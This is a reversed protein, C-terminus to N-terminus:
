LAPLSTPLSLKQIFDGVHSPPGNQHKVHLHCAQTKEESVSQVAGRQQRLGLGCWGRAQVPRWAALGAVVWGAVARSRPSADALEGAWM